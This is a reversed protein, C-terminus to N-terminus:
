TPPPTMMAVGALLQPGQGLLGMQGHRHGQQAQAAEVLPLGLREVHEAHVARGVGVVRDLLAVQEDGDAGPEVVADGALDRGEGRVGLDDVDVDVRRADRLVDLDIDRDDAVGLCM